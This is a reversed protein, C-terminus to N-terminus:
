CRLYNKQWSNIVYASSNTSFFNFFIAIDVLTLPFVSSGDGQYGFHDFFLRSLYTILQVERAKKILIM